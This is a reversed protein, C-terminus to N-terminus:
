CRYIAAQRSVPWGATRRPLTCQQQRCERGPM